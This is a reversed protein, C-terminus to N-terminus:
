TVAERGPHHVAAAGCHGGCCGRGTGPAPVLVQGALGMGLLPGDLAPMMPPGGRALMRPHRAGVAGGFAGFAESGDGMFGDM